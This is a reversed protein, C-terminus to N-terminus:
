AVERDLRTYEVMRQGNPHDWDGIYRFSWPSRSAVWKMDARYYWYNNRETYLRKRRNMGDLPFGPRQEFFTVFFRGGPRMVGAVRYLCLRMMNLSLHSFLSQAIAMDFTTGFDCDFRDTARLNAEPLRARQQPDLEDRYGAELLAHNVDIGYYHGPELHDVLMRGARLSGCGVDLFRHEPALGQALLFDRQLRGMATWRGGIFRRHDTDGTLVRGAYDPELQARRIEFRREIPSM